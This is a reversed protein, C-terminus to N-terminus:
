IRTIKKEKYEPVIPICDLQASDIIDKKLHIKLLNRGGHSELLENALILNSFSEKEEDSQLFKMKLLFSCWRELVEEAQINKQCSTRELGSKWNEYCIREVLCGALLLDEETYEGGTGACLIAINEYHCERIRQVVADANVFSALLIDGKHTCDVATAARLITKTGNTTTMLLIRDKVTEESYSDPSNGLEFGEIKKGEREGGLLIRDPHCDPDDALLHKKAEFTEEITEYPCVWSAGHYLATTITTTARLVDVCLFVDYDVCADIPLLEPLPFVHIKM